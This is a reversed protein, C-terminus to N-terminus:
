TPGRRDHRHLIFEGYISLLRSNTGIGRAVRKCTRLSLIGAASELYERRLGEGREVREVHEISITWSHAQCGM